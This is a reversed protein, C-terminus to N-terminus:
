FRYAFNGGRLVPAGSIQRDLVRVGPLCDAEVTVHVPSTTIKAVKREAAEFSRAKVSHDKGDATHVLFQM